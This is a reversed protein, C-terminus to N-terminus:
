ATGLFKREFDLGLKNGVAAAVDLPTRQSGDEATVDLGKGM